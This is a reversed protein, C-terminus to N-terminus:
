GKKAPGVGSLYFSLSIHPLFIFPSCFAMHVAPLFFSLFGGRAIAGMGRRRTLYSPGGSTDLQLAHPRSVEEDASEDALFFFPTLILSSINFFFIYM